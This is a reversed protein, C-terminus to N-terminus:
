EFRKIQAILRRRLLKVFLLSYTLGGHGLGHQRGSGALSAAATFEEAREESFPAGSTRPDTGLNLVSLACLEDKGQTGAWNRAGTAGAKRYSASSVKGRQRTRVEWVEGGKRSVKGALNRDCMDGHRRSLSLLISLLLLLKLRKWRIFAVLFFLSDREAGSTM